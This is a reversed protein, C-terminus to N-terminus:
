KFDVGIQGNKQYFYNVVYRIFASKTSQRKKSEQLIFDHLENPLKVYTSKQSVPEKILNVWEELFVEDSLDHKYVYYLMQRILTSKNVLNNQDMDCIYDYLDVPLSMYIDTTQQSM